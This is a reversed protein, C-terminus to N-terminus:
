NLITRANISRSFRCSINKMRLLRRSILRFISRGMKIIPLRINGIIRLHIISIRKRIGFRVEKVLAQGKTMVMSGVKSVEKVTTRQEKIM